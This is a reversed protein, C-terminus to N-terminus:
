PLASRPAAQGLATRSRHHDPFQSRGTRRPMGASGTRGPCTRAGNHGDLDYCLAEYFYRQRM